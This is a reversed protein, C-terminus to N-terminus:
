EAPCAPCGVQTPRQQCTNKAMLTLDGIGIKADKNVDFVPDSDSPPIVLVSRKALLTLDGVSVKRDGNIDMIELVDSEIFRADDVSLEAALKRAYHVNEPVLDVGTVKAGMRALSITDAGTNCQLHILRQGSIDGLESRQTDSLTSENHSLLTKFAEYHDRAIIAWSRKNAEIYENM